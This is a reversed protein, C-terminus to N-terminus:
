GPILRVKTEGRIGLVSKSEAIANGARRITGEVERRADENTSIAVVGITYGKVFM